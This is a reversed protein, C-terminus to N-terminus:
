KYILLSSIDSNYEPFFTTTFFKKEAIIRDISWNWWAINLLENRVKRSFRYKIIRAPVGGVIAFPPIDKTVVSGAGIVAGDGITVDKLVISNDGLWVNNGINIYGTDLLKIKSDYEHQIIKQLTILMNATNINHNGAILKIGFGATVFQGIKVTGHKVQIRGNIHSYRGITFKGFPIKSKRNIKIHLADLTPDNISIPTCYYDGNM